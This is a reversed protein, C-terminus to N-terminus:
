LGHRARASTPQSAPWCGWVRVQLSADYKKQQKHIIGLRYQIDDKKEFDQSHRLAARLFLVGDPSAVRAQLEQLPLHVRCRPPRTTYSHTRLQKGSNFYEDAQDYSNYREYLIGLGYWLYPDQPSPILYLAQQYATFAKQVDDVMLYCYGLWGWSDGDNPEVNLARQLFEVARMYGERTEDKRYIHACAKLSPVSHPNNRIAAQHAQLSEAPMDM